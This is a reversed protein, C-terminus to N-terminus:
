QSYIHLSYAKNNSNNKISHFIEKNNIYSIDNTSHYLTNIIEKDNNYLQEKLSGDLIKFLCGKDFHKHKNTRSNNDWELLYLQKNPMKMPLKIKSYKMKKYYIIDTSNLFSKWDNGIYRSVYYKCLNISYINRISNSLQTLNYIM